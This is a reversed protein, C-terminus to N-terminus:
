AAVGTSVNLLQAHFQFHGLIRDGSGNRVELAEEHTVPELFIIAV